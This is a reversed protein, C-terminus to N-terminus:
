PTGGTRCRRAGPLEAAALGLAGAGDPWAPRAVLSEPLADGLPLLRPGAGPPGGPRRRLRDRERAPHGRFALGLREAEARVEAVGPQGPDEGDPRNCMIARFGLAAIEAVESPKIQPSVSYEPDIEVIRM